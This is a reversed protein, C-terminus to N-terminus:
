AAAARAVAKAVAAFRFPPQVRRTAYVILLLREAPPALRGTEYGHLTQWPIRVHLGFEMLTMGLSDRLRRIEAGIPPSTTQQQEDSM